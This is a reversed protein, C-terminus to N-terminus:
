KKYNNSKKKKRCTPIAEIQRKWDGRFGTIKRMGTVKRRRGKERIDERYWGYTKWLRERTRRGEPKKLSFKKLAKWIKVPLDEYFLGKRFGVRLHSSM